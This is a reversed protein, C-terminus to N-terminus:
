HIKMLIDLAGARQTEMIATANPLIMSIRQLALLYFLVVDELPGSVALNQPHRPDSATKLGRLTLHRNVRSSSM